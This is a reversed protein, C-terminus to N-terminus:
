RASTCVCLENGEADAMVWWSPAHEDTVLTGGAAVIADVRGRADQTPVYVDLHIRSRETRPPDMKQFWIKPGSGRPDRLEVDGDGDLDEIYDCGVRWFDRIADADSCDIAIEYNTPRTTNAKAGARHALQEIEEALRLDRGTVGGADHSSVTFAIQGYGLSVDPHHNAREAAEAVEAVLQAARAFDDTSYSAYLAGDLHVFAGTLADRTQAPSLVADAPIM